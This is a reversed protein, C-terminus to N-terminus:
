YSRMALIGENIGAKSCQEFRVQASNNVWFFVVLFAGNLISEMVNTPKIPIGMNTSKM